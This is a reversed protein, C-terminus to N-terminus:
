LKATMLLAQDVPGRNVPAEYEMQGLFGRILMGIKKGELLFGDHGEPSEIMHHQSNPLYQALELQESVPYLVDSSISTVLVPIKISRLVDYYDGRNRGMDHSDMAETLRVYSGADFQRENFKQGQARLYEEVEFASGSSPRSPGVQVQDKEERGFKTWYAPHTRYTLMAMMRAVSLGSTPPADQHYMGDQWRPDAFIAQRQVESIGIQWPQHRGSSSLTVVSRVYPGAAQSLVGFEIATMGGMSGGIASVVERVGIDRLVELQCNVMDRITVRPFAAGMRKGTSSDIQSPGSSGYCGGLVNACFVFYKSTDFPKGQGLFAGWWSELNANGTLAHCIVLANSGASNLTGWTRYRCEVKPLVQGSELKFNMVVGTSGDSNMKGYEDAMPKAAAPMSSLQTGAKNM